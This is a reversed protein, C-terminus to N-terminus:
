FPVEVADREAQEASSYHRVVERLPGGVEVWLWERNPGCHCTLGRGHTELEGDPVSDPLGELDLTQTATM